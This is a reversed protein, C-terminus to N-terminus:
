LVCFGDVSFDASLKTVLYKNRKTMMRCIGTIIFMRCTM